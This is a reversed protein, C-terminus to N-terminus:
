QHVDFGLMGYAIRAGIQTDFKLLRCPPIAAIRALFDDCLNGLVGWLIYNAEGTYACKNGVTITGPAVM